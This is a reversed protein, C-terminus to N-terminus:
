FLIVMGSHMAELLEDALPQFLDSFRPFRSLLLGSHPTLCGVVYPPEFGPALKQVDNGIGSVGIPGKAAMGILLPRQEAGEGSVQQIEADIRRDPRRLLLPNQANEFSLPMM